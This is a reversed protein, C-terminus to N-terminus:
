KEPFATENFSPNSDGEYLMRLNSFTPDPIERSQALHGRALEMNRNRM